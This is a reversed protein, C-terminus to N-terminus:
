TSFKGKIKPKGGRLTDNKKTIGLAKLAVWVSNIQVGFHKARARLLADPYAKVHAKLAEKDLKRKRGRPKDAALNERQLWNYITKRSVKFIEAAKSQSGGNQVYELARERMDLSYSM